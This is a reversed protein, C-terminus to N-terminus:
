QESNFICDKKKEEILLYKRLEFLVLFLSFIKIKQLEIKM